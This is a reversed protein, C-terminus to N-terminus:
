DGKMGTVSAVRNMLRHRWTTEECLIKIEALRDKRGGNPYRVLPQGNPNSDIDWIGGRPGELRLMPKGGEGFKIEIVDYTADFNWNTASAWEVRYQEPKEDNMQRIETALENTTPNAAM